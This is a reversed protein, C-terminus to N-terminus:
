RSAVRSQTQRMSQSERQNTLCLAILLTAGMATVYLMPLWVLGTSYWLWSCILPVSSSFIMSGISHSLSFVRLRSGIPMMRKLMIQLPVSFFPMMTTACLFVWVEFRDVLMLFASLLSLFIMLSISCISQMRASFRDALYGSLPSLIIYLLIVATPIASIYAPPLSGSMKTIYTGFFIIHFHYIGGIAGSIITALLFTRTKLRDNQHLEAAESNSQQKYQHLVFEGSEELRARMAFIVLGFVGGIMFNMRWWYLPMYDQSALFCSGAALLAGVQSCCTVLGNGFYERNVAISEAVYIRVGDSEGSQSMMFAMRCIIMCSASFATADGPIVGIALTSIAALLCAAKLVYVRGRFDGLYGFILSGVPRMLTAISLAAFFSLFQSSESAQPMYAKALVSASLGFLAYDYFQVISALFALAFSQKKMLQDIIQYLFTM